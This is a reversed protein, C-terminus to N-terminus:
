KMLGFIRYGSIRGSKYGTLGYYSTSYLDIKRSNVEHPRRGERQGDQGQHHRLRGQRERPGPDPESASCM